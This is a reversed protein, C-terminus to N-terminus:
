RSGGPGTPERGTASEDERARSPERSRRATWAVTVAVLLVALAVAFGSAEPWTPGEGRQAWWRLLGLIVSLGLGAALVRRAQRRALQLGDAIRPSPDADVRAVPESTEGRPSQGDRLRRARASLDMRERIGLAATGVIPAALWAWTDKWWAPDVAVAWVLMTVTFAMVADSAHPDARAYLYGAPTALAAVLLRSATGLALGVLVIGAALTLWGTLSGPLSPSRSRDHLYGALGGLLVGLLIQTLSWGTELVVDGVGPATGLLRAITLPVLGLGLALLLSAPGARATM